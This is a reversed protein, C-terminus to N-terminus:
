AGNTKQLHEHWFVYVYCAGIADRDRPAGNHLAAPVGRLIGSLLWCTCRYMLVRTHTLHMSRMATAHHVTARHPMTQKIEWKVHLHEHQLVYVKHAGATDRDCPAHEHLAALLGVFGWKM